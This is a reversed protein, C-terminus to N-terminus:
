NQVLVSMAFVVVEASAAFSETGQVGKELWKVAVAVFSAFAEEADVGEPGVHRREAKGVNLADANRM